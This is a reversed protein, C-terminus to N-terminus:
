DATARVIRARAMRDDIRASLLDLRARLLLTQADIVVLSTGRGARYLATALELTREAAAVQAARSARSSAADRLARHADVIEARIGERTLERQERLSAIREDLGRGQAESALTDALQWSAQAGVAWTFDFRETQPVYRPNPNALLAEGVVDVRPIMGATTLARQAELAALQAELARLEARHAHARAVLAELDVDDGTEDLPEGVSAPVHAVHMVTRLRDAAADRAHSTTAVLEEVQAVQADARALDTPTAIGARALREADEHHARAAALAQEAVVVGLTARAWGWYLAEAELALRRETVEVMAEAASAGHEAAERAPLVRLFYDTVPIALQARVQTQDLIVPFQLPVAVLPSGPALLGRQTQDAPAALVGLVPAEIESLRTYGVTVGLRPVFGYDARTIETRAARVEALRAARDHSTEVIARVVDAVRLGDEVGVHAEVSTAEPLVESAPASPAPLAPEPPVSQAAAPAAFTVSAILVLSPRLRM